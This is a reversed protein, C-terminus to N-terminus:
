SSDPRRIEISTGDDAIVLSYGLKRAVRRTHRPMTVTGTKEAATELFALTKEDLYELREERSMDDFGPINQRYIDFPDSVRVHALKYQVLLDGRGSELIYAIATSRLESVDSRLMKTLLAEKQLTDGWAFQNMLLAANRVGINLDLGEVRARFEEEPEIAAMVNMLTVVGGDIQNVNTVDEILEDRISDVLGGVFAVRYVGSRIPLMKNDIHQLAEEAVDAPAGFWYRSLAGSLPALDSDPNSIVELALSDAVDPAGIADLVDYTSLAELWKPDIKRAVVVFDKAHRTDGLAAFATILHYAQVTTGNNSVVDDLAALVAPAQTPGRDIIRQVAENAAMSHTSDFQAIDELLDAPTSDRFIEGTTPRVDAPKSQAAAPTAPQILLALALALSLAVMTRATM